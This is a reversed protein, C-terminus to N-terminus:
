HPEGCAGKTDGFGSHQLGPFRGAIALQRKVNGEKALHLHGQRRLDSTPLLM